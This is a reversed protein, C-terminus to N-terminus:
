KKITVKALRKPAIFFDPLMNNSESWLCITKIRITRKEIPHDCQLLHGMQGFLAPKIRKARGDINIGLLETRQSFAGPVVNACGGKRRSILSQWSNTMGKCMITTADAEEFRKIGVVAAM